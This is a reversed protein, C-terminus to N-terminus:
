TSETTLNINLRKARTIRELFLYLFFFLYGTFAINYVESIDLKTCCSHVVIAKTNEDDYSSEYVHSSVISKVWLPLM